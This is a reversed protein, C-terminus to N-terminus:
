HRTGPPPALGAAPGKSPSDGMSGVLGQGSRIFVDQALRESFGTLFALGTLLATRTAGEAQVIPVTGGLILVYVALAFVLGVVPRLAAILRLDTKKMDHDLTPLNTQLSGSTMRALVSFVAGVAGAMAVLLLEGSLWTLADTVVLAVLAAALFVGVLLAGLLMGKLYRSQTRRAACRLMFDEVADLRASLRQLSAELKRAASPSAPSVPTEDLVRLADEVVGWVQLQCSRRDYMHLRHWATYSVRECRRLLDILQEPGSAARQGLAVILEDNDTLCAAALGDTLHSRVIAGHKGEFDALMGPLAEQLKRRQDDDAEGTGNAHLYAVAIDCFDPQSVRLIASKVFEVHPEPVAPTQRAHGTGRRIRVRSQRLRGLSGGGSPTEANRQQRM